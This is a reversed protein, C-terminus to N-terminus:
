NKFKVIFDKLTRWVKRIGWLIVLAFIFLAVIWIILPVFVVLWPIELGSIKLIFIALSLFIFPGPNLFVQFYNKM